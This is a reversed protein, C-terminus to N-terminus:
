WPTIPDDEGSENSVEQSVMVNAARKAWTPIGVTQVEALYGPWEGTLVARAYKFLVAECDLAGIALSEDDVQFVNVGFPPANEIAVIVFPTPKANRPRTSAFGRMYWALQRHYGYSFVAREFAGREACRTSKLDLGLVGGAFRDIRGKCPVTVQKHDVEVTEHWVVSAEAEGACRFLPAAKPHRMIAAAMANATGLMKMSVMERGAAADRAVVMRAKGDGTNLPPFGAETVKEDAAPRYVYYLRDFDPEGLTIAHALRGLMMEPSDTDSEGQMAARLHAMSRGVGVTIASANLADWSRYVDFPTGPYVGPPPPKTLSM